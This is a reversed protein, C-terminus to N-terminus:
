HTFAKRSKKVKKWSLVQDIAKKSAHDQLVLAAVSKEVEENWEEENQPRRLDTIFPVKAQHHESVNVYRVDIDSYIVREGEHYGDNNVFIGIKLYKNGPDVESRLLFGCTLESNQANPVIVRGAAM